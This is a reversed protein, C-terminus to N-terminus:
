SSSKSAIKTKAPFSSYGGRRFNVRL